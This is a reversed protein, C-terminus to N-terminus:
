LKMTFSVSVISYSQDETYTVKPKYLPSYAKYTESSTIFQYGLDISYGDGSVFQFGASYRNVRDGGKKYPSDQSYLGARLFSQLFPVAYQAGAKVDFTRKTGFRFFDNLDDYYPDNDDNKIRSNPWDQTVVGVETSFPFGAYAANAEFVSSSSIEYDSAFETPYKQGVTFPVKTDADIIEGGILVSSKSHIKMTSPLSYSLGFKLEDTANIIGGLKISYGTIKEELIDNLNFSGFVRKLGTTTSYGSDPHALYYDKNGTEIFKYRNYYDGNIFHISAGLFFGKAVESSAAFSWTNMGGESISSYDQQVEGFALSRMRYMNPDTSSKVPNYFNWSFAQYFYEGGRRDMEAYFDTGRIYISPDYGNIGELYSSSRNYGGGKVTQDFNDYQSYGFGLVLSGQAVPYPYSVSVQNIKTNSFDQDTAAGLYTSKVAGGNYNLNVNLTTKKIFGIAAPNGFLASNDSALLTNSYAMGVAQAGSGKIPSLYRVMDTESQAFVSVSVFSFISLLIVRNM